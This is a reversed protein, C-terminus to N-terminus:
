SVVVDVKSRLRLLCYWQNSFHIYSAMTVFKLAFTHQLNLVLMGDSLPAIPM